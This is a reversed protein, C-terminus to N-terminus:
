RDGMYGATCHCQGAVHDCQGGHHCPCDQSCNQGFTGPPCPQACVAGQFVPPFVQLRPAESICDQPWRRRSTARNSCGLPGGWGKAPGEGWDCFCLFNSVMVGFGCKLSPCVSVLKSIWDKLVYRILAQQIGSGGSSELSIFICTPNSEQGEM